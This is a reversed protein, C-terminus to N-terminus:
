PVSPLHPADLQLSPQPQVRSLHAAGGSLALTDFGGYLSRPLDGLLSSASPVVATSAGNPKALKAVYFGGAFKLLDGGAKALAWQKDLTDADVGLVDCADVANYVAGDALAQPWTVGFKATFESLKGSPPHLETPKSLSAKNAISYYHNDVLKRSLMTVADIEGEEAVTLGRDRLQGKLLERVALNNAHPKIFVFAQMKGSPRKGSVGAIIQAKALCDDYDLDEFLDFLSAKKVM